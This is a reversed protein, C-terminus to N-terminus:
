SGSGYHEAFRCAAALLALNIAPATIALWPRVAEGFVDLWLNWPLGLPILFVAALPDKEQGLLGSTGIALMALAFVYGAVGIRFAWRCARNM